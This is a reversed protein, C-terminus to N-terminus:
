SRSRREKSRKRRLIVQVEKELDPDTGLEMLVARARASKSRELAMLLFLRSSGHQRERLLAVLDELVDDDATAAIAVALGDKAGKETEERFTSTFIDWGFKAAPVALARAIGERVAGPYPRQLHALLIPLANSYPVSTNVLDWVSGVEFGVARLDAVLSREAQRWEAAREERQREAQARKAVFAPDAELKTLLEAATVRKKV